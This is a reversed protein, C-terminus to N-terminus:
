ESSFLIQMLSQIRGNQVHFPSLLFSLNDLRFRLRPPPIRVDLASSIKQNNRSRARASSVVRDRSRSRVFKTCRVQINTRLSARHDVVHAVNQLRGSGTEVVQNFDRGIKHVHVIEGSVVFHVAFVEVVIARCSGGHRHMLQRM